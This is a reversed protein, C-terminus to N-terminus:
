KEEIIFTVEETQRARVSVNATKSRPGIGIVGVVYRGPALRVRHKRTALSHLVEGHTGLKAIRLPQRELPHKAASVSRRVRSVHVILTGCDSAKKASCLVDHSTSRDSRGQAVTPVAAIGLIVAMVGVLAKRLLM